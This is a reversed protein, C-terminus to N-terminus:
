DCAAEGRDMEAELEFQVLAALEPVTTIDVTGHFDATLRRDATCVNSCLIGMLNRRPRSKWGDMSMTVYCGKSNMLKSKAVCATLLRDLVPCSLTRRTPLSKLGPLRELLVLRLVPSDIVNFAVASFLIVGLLDDQLARTKALSFPCPLNTDMPGISNRRGGGVKGRFAGGATSEHAATAKWRRWRPKRPHM